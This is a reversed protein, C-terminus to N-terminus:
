SAVAAPVDFVHERYWAFTRRLGDELDVQPVYGTVAMTRAMDPCRRQPSGPTDAGGELTLSKGVVRLISRALDAMSIEQAQNGINYTGGVAEGSDVLRKILKVADSVYCFARRHSPSFVQLRGGARAACARQMLEPVVHSMGMRPGYVNHPRIITFPLGAHHCMAEGYLKSLLYTSRLDALDPLAIPVSEPTPVSLNLYAASGAYVESTSAFVFRVLRRQRAAVETINSLLAVNDRLVAFPQSTVNTVGVIAALHFIQDYDDDLASLGDADLLNRNVLRVNGQRLLADLTADYAGRSLNDLLDVRRGEAALSSALHAGIFGAGGTILVRM